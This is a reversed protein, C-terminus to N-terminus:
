LPFLAAFFYLPLLVLGLPCVFLLAASAPLLYRHAHAVRRPRITGLSSLVAVTGRSILL